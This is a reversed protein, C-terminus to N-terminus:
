HVPQAVGSRILAELEAIRRPLRHSLHEFGQETILFDDEIRVGIGRYKEFAPRMKEIWERNRADRGLNELLDERVYVGPEVTLVMGPRFPASRDGVDHVDMGLWHGAGHMFFSRYQNGATDTILGLKLLGAKIVEVIRRHLEALSSGPRLLKMGEEQAELVLQYIEAQPATFRGGAPVTRTIDAAYYDYEAGVDMLVLDMSAVQRTNEDYHLTTANPGSAIISPFAVAAGSQLYHHEIAAQVQHEYAEPKLQRMASLIGEETIEVARRVREIEEPRKVLRQTAFLNSGDRVIVGPFRDRLRRAFEFEASLRGRLGPRDELLLFVPARGEQLTSFFKSYEDAKLHGNGGHPQGSLISDVFDEFANHAHVQEIGSIRRAQDPSLRNGTWVERAPDRELIFLNEPVTRNSPMLVLVTEEQRIGTLYYLNNEQRFKSAIDRTFKRPPASFLILMGQQMNGMVAARRQAYVEAPIPAAALPLWFLTLVVCITFNKM